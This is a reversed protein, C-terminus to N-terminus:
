ADSSPRELLVFRPEQFIVPWAEHNRADHASAPKWGPAPVAAPAAPREKFAGPGDVGPRVYAPGTACGALLLTLVLAGAGARIKTDLGVNMVTRRRYPRAVNGMTSPRRRNRRSRLARRSGPARRTRSSTCPTAPRSPM